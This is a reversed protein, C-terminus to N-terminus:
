RLVLSTFNIITKAAAAIKLPFHPGCDKERKQNGAMEGVLKWWWALGGLSIKKHPVFGM